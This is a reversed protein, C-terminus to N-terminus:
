SGWAERVLERVTKATVDTVKQHSGFNFFGREFGIGFLASMGRVAERGMVEYIEEHGPLDTVEGRELKELEDYVVKFKVGKAEEAVKVFENWTLTEGIIYSKKPWAPTDLLAATFRAVDSTHTFSGPVNGTGPIAATNHPIDLFLTFSGMHTPLQPVFYDTFYGNIVVTYELSTNEVADRLAIKDKAIPFFAALRHAPSRTSPTRTLRSVRLHLERGM